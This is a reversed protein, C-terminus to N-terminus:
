GTRRRGTAVMVAAATSVTLQLILTQIEALGWLCPYYVQDEGGSLSLHPLQVHSRRHLHCRLHGDSMGMPLLKQVARWTLSPKHFMLHQRRRRRRRWVQCLLGKIGTNWLVALNRSAVLFNVQLKHEAGRDANSGFQSTLRGDVAGCHTPSSSLLMATFLANHEKMAPQM